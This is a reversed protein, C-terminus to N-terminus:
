MTWVAGDKKFLIDENDYDEIEYYTPRIFFLNEIDKSCWGGKLLHKEADKRHKFVQIKKERDLIYELYICIRNIGLEGTITITRTKCRCVPRGVIVPPDFQPTKKETEIFYLDEDCEFCQYKYGPVDSKYVPSHCRQCFLETGTYWQKRFIIGEM